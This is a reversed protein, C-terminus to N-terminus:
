RTWAAEAGADISRDLDDLKCELHVALGHVHAVLDDVVAVDDLIKAALSRDEGLIELLNGLSAEQDEARVPDRRRHPALGLAPIQTREVGGTREHRLHVDLRQAVRAVAELDHQDTMAAVDLDLAREAM